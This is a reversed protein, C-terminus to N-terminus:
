GLNTALFIARPVASPLRAEPGRGELDPKAGRDTPVFAALVLPLVVLAIGGSPGSVRLLGNLAPRVTLAGCVPRRRCAAFGTSRGLRDGFLLDTVVCPASAPFAGALAAATLLSGDVALGAILDARVATGSRPALALDAVGLDIPAAGPRATVKSVGFDLVLVAGLARAIGVVGLDPNIPRDLVDERDTAALRGTATRERPRTTASFALRAVGSAFAACFIVWPRARDFGSAPAFAGAMARADRVVWFPRGAERGVIRGFVPDSGFLSASAPVGARGRARCDFSSSFGLPREAVLYSEAGGLTRGRRGM